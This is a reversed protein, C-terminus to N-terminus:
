MRMAAGAFVDNWPKPVPGPGPVAGQGEARMPPPGRYRGGSCDGELQRCYAQWTACNRSGSPPAEDWCRQSQQYCDKVAAWCGEQTRYAGPARGCWNANKALCDSPIAGEKQELRVGPGGGGPVWVRPGPIPYPPLPKRYINYQLGPTSREVSGPFQAEKEAPIELRGGPGDQLFVQACGLYYQPGDQVANHLAVIEPRVLYYGAPLGVPLRVSLLGKNKILRDVCWGGREAEYGDEWIKFWGRGAAQDKSMDDVKKVYVACPGKHDEAIAGPQEGGSYMRFEFSLTAGQSAACTYAVARGGDRGPAALTLGAAEGLPPRTGTSLFLTALRGCAMDASELSGIPGNATAGDRPMRVCTGDGQSKGNIFLTTFLTHGQALSATGLLALLLKM